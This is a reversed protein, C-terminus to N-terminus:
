VQSNKIYSYWGTVIYKTQTKSPIGRHTFTWDAPWIITLGKEPKVKLKQYYFETEGEDTVDNLYTMFVLHRTSNPPIASCRETHYRHYGAEPNYKKINTQEIVAWPEYADAYQYKNTYHNICQSLQNFYEIYLKMNNNLVVEISDKATKDIISSYDDKSCDGVVGEFQHGASHYDIIKDCISNDDFYVGHIFNDFINLRHEKM